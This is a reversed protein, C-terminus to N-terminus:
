WAGTRIARTRLANHLAPSCCYQSYPRGLAVASANCKGITETLLGELAKAHETIAADTALLEARTLASQARAADERADTAPGTAAEVAAEAEALLEALGESDASILALRAGDEPHEDGAARRAIIQQRAAHLAEIRARVRDLAIRASALPEHARAAREDAIVVAQAASNIDINMIM